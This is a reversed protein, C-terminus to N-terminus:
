HGPLLKSAEAILVAQGVAVVVAIWKLTKFKKEAIAQRRRYFLIESEATMEPLGAATNRCDQLVACLKEAQEDSFEVAVLRKVLRHSELANM